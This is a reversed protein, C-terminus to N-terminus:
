DKPTIPRMTPTFQDDNTFHIPSKMKEKHFFFPHPPPYFSDHRHFCFTNLIGTHHDYTLRSAWEDSVTTCLPFSNSCILQHDYLPHISMWIWYLAFHQFTLLLSVRYFHSINWHWSSIHRIDFTSALHHFWVGHFWYLGLSIWLFTLMIGLGIWKFRPYM